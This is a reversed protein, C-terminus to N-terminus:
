KGNIRLADVIFHTAMSLNREQDSLLYNWKEGHFLNNRLRIVIRFLAELKDLQTAETSGFAYTIQEYSHKDNNCLIRLKQDFGDEESYRSQFYSASDFFKFSPKAIMANAYNRAHRTTSMGDMLQNEAYSFALTFKLVIELLNQSLHISSGFIWTIDKETIM